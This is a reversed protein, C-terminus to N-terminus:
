KTLQHNSHQQSEKTSKMNLKSRLVATREDPFLDTKVKHRYKHKEAKSLNVQISSVIVRKPTKELRKRKKLVKQQEKDLMASTRAFEEDENLQRRLEANEDLQLQKTIVEDNLRSDANQSLEKRKNAM